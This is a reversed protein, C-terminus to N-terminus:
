TLYQAVRNLHATPRFSLAAIASCSSLALDIRSELEEPEEWRRFKLRLDPAVGPVAEDTEQVMRKEVPSRITAM